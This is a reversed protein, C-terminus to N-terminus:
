KPISNPTPTFQLCIQELSYPTYKIVNKGQAFDVNHYEMKLYSMKPTGIYGCGQIYKQIAVPLHSFDKETFVENDTQLQNESILTGADKQFDSKVPSYPIYFWVLILGVFLLMRGIVAFM